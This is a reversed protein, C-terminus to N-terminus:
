GAERRLARDLARDVMRLAGISGTLLGPSGAENFRRIAILLDEIVAVNEATVPTVEADPGQALLRRDDDSLLDAM